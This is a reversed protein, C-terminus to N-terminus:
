EQLTLPRPQAGEAQLEGATRPHATALTNDQVECNSVLVLLTTTSVGVSWALAVLSSSLNLDTIWTVTSHIVSWYSKRNWTAFPSFSFFVIHSLRQSTGFNDRIFWKGFCGDCLCM